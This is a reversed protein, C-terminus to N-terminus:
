REGPISVRRKIAEMLSAVSIVGCLLTRVRAVQKVHERAAEKEEAEFLDSRSVRACGDFEAFALGVPNDTGCLVLWRGSSDGSDAYGLLAALSYVPLLMGRIGAIDLFGSVRSPLPVVKPCRALGAIEGAKLAYRDGAVRIVILSEPAAADERPPAACTQDFARRLAAARAVRSSGDSV